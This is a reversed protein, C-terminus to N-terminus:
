RHLGPGRRKQAIHPADKASAQLGLDMEAAKKSLGEVRKNDAKPLAAAGLPGAM